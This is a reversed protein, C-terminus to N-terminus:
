APDISIELFEDMLPYYLATKIEREGRLRFIAAYERLQPAHRRKEEALFNERDGGGHDGTKYDIIWRVGNETFTRDIKKHVTEGDLFATLELESAADSRPALMWQGDKSALSKTLANKTRTVANQLEDGFLGNSQLAARIAHENKAIRAANWNDVGENPIRCLFAHVVTGIVKAKEQAWEFTPKERPEDDDSRALKFDVDAPILSPMFDAPLRHLKKAVHQKSETPAAVQAALPTVGNKVAPWLHELLSGAAPAVTISGDKEIKPDINALLHLQSKARTTAV